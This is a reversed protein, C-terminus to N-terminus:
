LFIGMIENSVDIGKETLCIRGNEAILSGKTIYAEMENEVDPFARFFDIGFREKFKETDIGAAKRLATFAYTSMQDKMNEKRIKEDSIPLRGNQNAIIYKNFDYTNHYRCGDFFSHAGLGIGIFDEFDWYKLNHRCEYGKLAANSIEYNMYGHGKLFERGKHYMDRETGDDPLELERKKYLDYFSTGEELQLSYYSIHPVGTEVARELSDKWIDMDQGPLGFMLDINVNDFGAKECMELSEYVDGPDHIRGINELVRDNFSQVGLSLRNIGSDRYIDLTEKMLLGPNAEVTVESDAPVDFSGRIKEVVLGIKEGDIATPTGGGIFITDVKVPIDKLTHAITQIEGLLGGVYRDKEEHDKDDFSLFGCYGCKRECFPIHVYIGVTKERHDKEAM